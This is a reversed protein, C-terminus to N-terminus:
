NLPRRKIQGWPRPYGAPTPQTKEVAIIVRKEGGPLTLPTIKRLTGGLKRIAGIAESTEQEGEPGKMACFWGGLRVRPLCLESLLQLRAVARSTVVDFAGGYEEARAVVTEAEVGLAPLAQRLWRIKKETSDLLTVAASPCAIKLPVGPFGAGTGIDLVTKGELPMVTLLTLSDLLHLRAFAAPETVATLNMVQNQALVAEGFSLLAAIQGDSLTLQLSPLEERLACEMRERATM